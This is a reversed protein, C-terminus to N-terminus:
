GHAATERFVKELASFQREPDCLQLVRERGAAGFQRRLSENGILRQLAEGLQQRNGPPLLVGCTEDVIELAGGIASTVIPLGAYFAEMFAISFGEGELNPQCYIDAAVLLNPM